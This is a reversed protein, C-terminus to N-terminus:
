GKHSISQVQNYFQCHAEQEAQIDQDEM